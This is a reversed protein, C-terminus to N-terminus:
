CIYNRIVKISTRNLSKIFNNTWHQRRGYSLQLIQFFVIKLVEVFLASLTHVYAASDIQKSVLFQALWELENLTM